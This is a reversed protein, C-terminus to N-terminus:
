KGGIKPPYEWEYSNVAAVVTDIADFHDAEQLERIIHHAMRGLETQIVFRIQKQKREFGDALMAMETATLYDENM